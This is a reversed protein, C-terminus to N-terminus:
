CIQFMVTEQSGRHAPTLSRMDLTSPGRTYTDDHGEKGKFLGMSAQTASSQRM